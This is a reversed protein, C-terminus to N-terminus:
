IAIKLDLEKSNTLPRRVSVCVYMCVYMCVCLGVVTCIGGAGLSGYTHRRRGGLCVYLQYAHLSPEIFASASLTCLCLTGHVCHYARVGYWPWM